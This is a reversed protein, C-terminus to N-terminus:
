IHNGNLVRESLRTKVLDQSTKKSKLVHLIDEEISDNCVLHFITVPKTQGQRHLRANAQLYSELSYNFNYWIIVNGGRQLNLGHGASKPHALLLKIKGENWREVIGTKTTLIVTEPFRKIIRIVDARYNAFVLVNSDLTELIEALMELKETHFDVVTDDCYAFGSCMQLLKTTLSMQNPTTIFHNAKYELVLERELEEYKSRTDGQMNFYRYVHHTDPLVIYDDSTMSVCIDSVKETIQQLAKPKPTYTFGNYGRDFYVDRFTGYFKYLRNGGDLINFQSWLDGVGNPSPTGSLCVVYKAKSSLARIIKFRLTGRNKIMSSEDIIIMDYQFPEPYNNLWSLADYNLVLIDHENKIAQNKVKLDGVATNVKLHKTHEWILAEEGWVTKATRLPALVITRKIKKAALLDSIATLCSITKGLGMDLMLYCRHKKKIFDICRLQYPHLNDRNM